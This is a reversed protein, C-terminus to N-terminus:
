RPVAPKTKLRPYLFIFSIYARFGAAGCGPPVEWVGRAGVEGTQVELNKCGIRSGRWTLWKWSQAEGEGPPAAQGPCPIPDWHGGAGCEGAGRASSRRGRPHEAGPLFRLARPPSPMVHRRRPCGVEGERGGEM